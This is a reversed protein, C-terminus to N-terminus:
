YGQEKLYEAMTQVQGACGGLTQFKGKEPGGSVSECAKDKIFTACIIGTATKMIAAGGGSCTLQALGTAPDHNVLMYKKGGLRIGAESPNRNGNSAGMICEFENIHIEKTDAATMGEVTVVSPANIDPFSPTWFWGTGDQGFIAAEECEKKYMCEMTSWNYKDVIQAIYEAWADAM